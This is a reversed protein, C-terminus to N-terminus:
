RAARGLREVEAIWEVRKAPSVAAIGGYITAHVPKIGVFHLINRRLLKLAHAGFWLRYIFGPMGMTIVIRASKKAFIRWSGGGGAAQKELLAPHMVRELFGKLIAPMDGLWLPFLIVVHDSNWLAARAAELEPELPQLERYGGWLIPDFKMRSLVFLDVHHGASETGHQYARGLAECFTDRQSHGVVIMINAM